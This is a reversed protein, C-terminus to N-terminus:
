RTSTTPGTPRISTSSSTRCGTTTCHAALGANGPTDAKLYDRNLNLNQGTVRWGMEEPGNQNIRNYPGFREHGDVNFIPVFVLTVKDLLQAALHENGGPGAAADHGRGQRLIRGRPHLGAGAAGGPRHPGPPRRSRITGGPRRGGASPRSGPSQNRLIDIRAPPQRGGPGSFWAMTEAYTPTRKGGSIEYPTELAWATGTSLVLLIFIRCMLKM